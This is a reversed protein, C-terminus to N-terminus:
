AWPDIRFKDIEEEDTLIHQELACDKCVKEMKEAEETEVGFLEGLEEAAGYLMSPEYAYGMFFKGCDDCTHMYKPVIIIAAVIIVVVLIIPILKKM